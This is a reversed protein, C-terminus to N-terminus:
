GTKPHATARFERCTARFSPRLLYASGAILPLLWLFRNLYIRMESHFPSGVAPESVFRLTLFLTMAFFAWQPASRLRVLGVVAYCVLWFALLGGVLVWVSGRQSLLGIEQKFGLAYFVRPLLDGICLLGAFFFAVAVLYIGKPPRKLLLNPRFDNACLYLGGFHGSREATGCRWGGRPRLGGKKGSLL